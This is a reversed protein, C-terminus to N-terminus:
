RRGPEEVPVFVAVRRFTSRRPAERAQPQPRRRERRSGPPTTAGRPRM